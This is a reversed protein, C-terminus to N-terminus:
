SPEGVYDPDNPVPEADLTAGRNMMKLAEVSVVQADIGQAKLAHMMPEICDDCSSFFNGDSKRLIHTGPPNDNDCARYSCPPM